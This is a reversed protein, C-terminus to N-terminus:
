LPLATITTTATYIGEPVSVGGGIGVNFRITTTAGTPHNGSTRRAVEVPSTTLGDFCRNSTDGGAVGCVSGADQFRLAIDTGEPSYAFHADTSDTTFLFDPVGGAPVYDAITNVGSQMAPSSTAQITVTYGSASDTTVLFSASGTAVGGTVGALNPTMVVDAIASLSLYVSRMQQYGAKLIFNSSSSEGTAVEGATDELRYNNSASPEGGTNISDSQMKFNSSQMVQASGIQLFYVVLLTTGGAYM